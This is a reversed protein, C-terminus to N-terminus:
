RTLCKLDMKKTLWCLIKIALGVLLFENEHDAYRRYSKMWNMDVVRLLVSRELDEFKYGADTITKSQEEMRKEVIKLVKDVVDDVDCEEVFKEDILNRGKEVLGKELDINIKSLDWEYYPKEDTLCERIVKNVIEPVMKMIHEHVPLGDLVRNREGYIIERQKNLVDDFRIVMKRQAFNQLEIKKQANEIQKSLM